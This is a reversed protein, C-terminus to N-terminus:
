AAEKIPDLTVTSPFPQVELARSGGYSYCFDRVGCYDCLISPRAPFLGSHIGNWANEYDYVLRAGTVPTLDHEGTLVGDRCMFYGGRTVAPWEVPLCSAYTGLQVNGKPTKGTKLDVVILEGSLRSRLIRDIYGKTPVKGIHTGSFAIEIAPEGAPTIWIEYPSRDLWARWNQTFIPGFQMWWDYDEKNPWEKSKRGSAKFDKRSVGSENEAERVKRDFITEFSDGPIDTFGFWDDEETAEHVASGGLLAWSPVEEEIGVIKQLRFKEGCETYTSMGSYSLHQIAASM